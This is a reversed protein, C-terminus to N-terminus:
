KQNESTSLNDPPTNPNGPVNVNSQLLSMDKNGNGARARTEFISQIGRIVLAGLLFEKWGSPIDPLIVAETAVLVRMYAVIFVWVLALVALNKHSPKNPQGNNEEFFGKFWEFQDKLWSKFNNNM